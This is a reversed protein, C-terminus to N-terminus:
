LESVILVSSPTSQMANTISSLIKKRNNEQLSSNMRLTKIVHSFEDAAIVISGLTYQPFLNETCQLVKEMTLFSIFSNNLFENWGLQWGLILTIAHVVGRCFFRAVTECSKCLRVM